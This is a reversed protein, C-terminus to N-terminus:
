RRTGTSAPGAATNIAALFSQVSDEFRHTMLNPRSAIATVPPLGALAQELKASLASENEPDIWDGNVGPTILEAAGARTSCLVPMGALLAENVVAGFRENLSPLVLLQGVHCWAWLSRGQQYGAFLISADAQLSRTLAQLSESLAGDGVIVLVSERRTTEPLATFARILRPLNKVPDLRGVFLLVKRGRLRFRALYEDALPRADALAAAVTAPNQLIPSCFVPLAPVRQRYALRTKENCCVLASAAGLVLRRRLRRGWSFDRDLNDASDDTWVILKVDRALRARLAAFVSLLSFEPTILVHPKFKRLLSPLGLFAGHRGLRRPFPMYSPPAALQAECATRIQPHDEGPVLFVLHGHPNGALVANFFDVRYPALAPRIILFSGPHPPTM